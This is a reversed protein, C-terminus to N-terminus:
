RGVGELAALVVDLGFRTGRGEPDGTPNYTALGLVRVPVAQAAAHVAELLQERPPWHPAPTMGGPVEEPGAVDTDVHLYWGGAAAARPRLAEAVRRAVAAQSLEEAPMHLIPSRALAALEPEDLDSTGLLAAAEPRVPPELEAAQRWDALDWGLAVAYCMGGIYGSESTAQTNLDGHADFWVVGAPGDEHALAGIAGVAHTCDGELVLVVDSARLGARVAAATRAAIRGLNTVTDRTRDARPLEIWIPEGVEHGQARLREALGADLFARPGLAYGWRAVDMQYPVCVVTVHMPVEM